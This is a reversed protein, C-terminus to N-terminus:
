RTTRCGRYTPQSVASQAAGVIPTALHADSVLGVIAGGQAAQADAVSPSVLVQTTGLTLWVAVLMSRPSPQGFLHRM